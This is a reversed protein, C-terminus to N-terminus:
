VSTRLAGQGTYLGPGDLPQILQFVNARYDCSSYRPALGVEPSSLTLLASTTEYAAIRAAVTAVSAMHGLLRQFHTLPVVTRGRLSSQCNLLSQAHEVALRAMMSVSDLEMSSFYIKQM